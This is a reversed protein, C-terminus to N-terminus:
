MWYIIGPKRRDGAVIMMTTPWLFTHVLKGGGEVEGEEGGVRIEGKQRM